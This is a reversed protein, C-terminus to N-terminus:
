SPMWSRCDPPPSTASGVSRYQPPVIPLPPSARDPPTAPSTSWSISRTRASKNSWLLTMLMPSMAFDPRARITETVWDHVTGAGYTFVTVLEPDHAQLVDKLFLGVTHQCLDASVYGLRLPRKDTSRFPPRPRPGGARAIAWNGWARAQSLRDVDPAQPDYELSVLANRRLVPHDPLREQLAAYIRRSEAHDGAERALNALNALPRPDDPALNRARTYCEGAKSFFGFNFLLVGIDLLTIADVGDTALIQQCAALMEPFRGTQAYAELKALKSISAM